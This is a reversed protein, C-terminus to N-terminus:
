PLDWRNLARRLAVRDERMEHRVVARLEARPDRSLALKLFAWGAALRGPEPQPQDPQDPQGLPEPSPPRGLQHLIHERMWPTHLPSV